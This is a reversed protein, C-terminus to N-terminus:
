ENDFTGNLVKDIDSSGIGVKTLDVVKNVSAESIGQDPRWLKYGITVSSTASISITNANKYRVSATPLWALLKAFFGADFKTNSTLDYDISEAILVRSVLWGRGAKSLTQEGLPSLVSNDGTRSLAQLTALKYYVVKLKPITVTAQTVKSWDIGTSTRGQDDGSPAKRAAAGASAGSSGGTTALGSSPANANGVDASSGKPPGTEANGSASPSGLVSQATKGGKMATSLADLQSFAVDLGISRTHTLDGAVIERSAKDFRSFDSKHFDPSEITEFLAQIKDPKRAVVITGVVDEGVIPPWFPHFPRGPEIGQFITELGPPDKAWGAAVVLAVILMCGSIRRLRM